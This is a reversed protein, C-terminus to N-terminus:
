HPEVYRRSGEQHHVFQGIDHCAVARTEASADNSSLLAVLRKLDRSDHEILKEANDKWFDELQHAPNDFSLQGSALQSAYEDYSSMEDLRHKLVSIVYTLADQLETDSYRREELVDCLPLVRAGLLRPANAAEDAELWNRWLSVVLRVTKLKLAYQAVRVLPAVLHLQADMEAAAAKDFSLVWLCFLALYHLQPVGTNGSAAAPANSKPSVRLLAVIKPLLQADDHGSTTQAWILTRFPPTRLLEGAMTLAMAVRHGDLEEVPTDDLAEGIARALYPVLADLADKARQSVAAGGAEACLVLTLFQAAKVSVFLDDAQLARAHTM